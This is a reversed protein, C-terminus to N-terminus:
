EEDEITVGLPEVIERLREVPITGVRLVRLNEGTADVITSPVSGPTPGGDLYVEVSEGLMDQAQAADTAADKGTLNASSVALPGTRALLELAVEHDPM